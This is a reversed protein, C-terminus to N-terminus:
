WTVGVGLRGASDITVTKQTGGNSTVFRLEASSSATSVGIIKAYENNGSGFLWRIGSQATELLEVM